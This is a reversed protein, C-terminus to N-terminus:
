SSSSSSSSGDGGGFINGLVGLSGSGSRRNRAALAAPSAPPSASSSSAGKSRAAREQLLEDARGNGSRSRPSSSSDGQKTTGLGGVADILGQGKWGLQQMIAQEAAAMSAM